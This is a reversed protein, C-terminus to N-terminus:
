LDLLDSSGRGVKTSQDGEDWVEFSTEVKYLINWENM